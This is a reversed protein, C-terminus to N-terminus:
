GGWGLHNQDLNQNYDMTIDDSPTVSPNFALTMFYVLFANFQYNAMKLRLKVVIKTM